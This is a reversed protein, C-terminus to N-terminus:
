AGGSEVAERDGPPATWAIHRGYWPDHRMGRDCRGVPADNRRGHACRIPWISPHPPDSGRAATGRLVRYIRTVLDDDDIGGVM